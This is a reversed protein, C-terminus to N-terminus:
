PTGTRALFVDLRANTDGPLFMAATSVFFLLRGDASLVPQDSREGSTPQAGGVSVSPRITAPTCGSAGACTDRLFIDFTGNTDNAVLNTARSGFAVFRGDASISAGQTAPGGSPADPEGGSSSVSARLTSPTCGGAAGFCTDRVFVDHTNGTDNPFLNTAFSSFVVHRGT